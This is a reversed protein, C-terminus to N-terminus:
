PAELGLKVLTSLLILMKLTISSSSKSRVCDEKWLRQMLIRIRPMM